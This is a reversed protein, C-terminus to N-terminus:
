MGISYGEKWMFYYAILGAAVLNIIAHMQMAPISLMFIHTLIVLAIGIFYALLHKNM